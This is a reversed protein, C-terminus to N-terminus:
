SIAWVSRLIIFASPRFMMYPGELDIHGRVGAPGTGGTSVALTGIDGAINGLSQDLAILIAVVAQVLTGNNQGDLVEGAIGGRLIAKLGM